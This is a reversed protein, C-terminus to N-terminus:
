ISTRLALTNNNKENNNSGLEDACYSQLKQSDCVEAFENWLVNSPRM